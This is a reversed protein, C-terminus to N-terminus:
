CPEYGGFCLMYSDSGTFLRSAGMWGTSAVASNDQFAVSVLQGGYATTNLSFEADCLLSFTTRGSRYLLTGGPFAFIDIFQQEFSTGGKMSYYLQNSLTLYGLTVNGKYSDGLARSNWCPDNLYSNDSTTYNVVGYEFGSDKYIVTNLGNDAEAANQLSMKNSYHLTHINTMFISKFDPDEPDYALPRGRQDYLARTNYDFYLGKANGYNLSLALKCLCLALILVFLSVYVQRM